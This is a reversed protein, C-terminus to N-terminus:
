FGLALGASARWYSLKEGSFVLLDLDKFTKFRRLDGRVGVHSGFMINLGVGLDYGLANSSAGLLGNSLSVHPRVLGIGGVVYPRVPGGPVGILM